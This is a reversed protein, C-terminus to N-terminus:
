IEYHSEQRDHHLAKDDHRHAVRRGVFAVGLQVTDDFRGRIRIREKEEEGREKWDGRKRNRGEQLNEM